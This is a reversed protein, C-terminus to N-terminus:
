STSRNEQVVAHVCGGSAPRAPLRRRNVDLGTGLIEIRPDSLAAVAASLGLIALKEGPCRHGQAVDAGGHPIFADLQEYDPHELFREPRFRDPDHWFQADHDTGLIDIVVRGGTSVHQGDLDVDRVARGPLMPVFPATRRVEQAFARAIPGETLAGRDVTEAHIRTRWEPHDHLEKAAFAVFRAVAVMPRISNQLEVGALHPTLLRGDRDRHWSWHHLATYSPPALEGTRVARVLRTTHRDSYLRNLVAAPFAPTWPRGFGDVIQALRRAWRTQAASTGPLGAWRM